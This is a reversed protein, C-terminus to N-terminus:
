SLERNLCSLWFMEMEKARSFHFGFNSSTPVHSSLIIAFSESSNDKIPDSTFWIEFSYTDLYAERKISTDSYCNRGESSELM